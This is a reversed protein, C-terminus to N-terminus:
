QAGKIRDDRTRQTHQADSTCRPTHSCGAPAPAVTRESEEPLLENVKAFFVSLSYHADVIFKDTRHFYRKIRAATEDVGLQKILRHFRQMDKAGDIVPKQNPFRRVWHAFFYDLARKALQKPTPEAELIARLEALKEGLKLHDAEIRALVELPNPENTAM